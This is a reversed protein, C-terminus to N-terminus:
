VFDHILFSIPHGLVQILKGIVNEELFIFTRHTTRLACVEAAFFYVRQKHIGAKSQTAFGNSCEDLYFM